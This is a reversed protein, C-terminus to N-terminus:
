LSRWACVTALLTRFRCDGIVSYSFLFVTSGQPAAAACIAPWLLGLFGAAQRRRASRLGCSGSSGQQNPSPSLGPLSCRPPNPEARDLAGPAINESSRSSDAILQILSPVSEGAGARAVRVRVAATAAPPTGATPAPPPAASSGRPACWATRPRHRRRNRRGWPGGVPAPSCFVGSPGARGGSWAARPRWV